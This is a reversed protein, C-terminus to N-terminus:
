FLFKSFREFKKPLFTPDPALVMKGYESVVEGFIEPYSRFRIWLLLFLARESTLCFSAPYFMEPDLTLFM